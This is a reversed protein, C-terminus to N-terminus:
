GGNCSSWVPLCAIYHCWSCFNNGNLGHYFASLFGIFYALLLPLAICVQLLRKGMSWRGIHMSPLFIFAALLGVVLGGFHAFNDVGPFLGLAFSFLLSGFIMLLKRRPKKVLSWNKILDVLLVSDLGFIAGSAGVTVQNPLFVASLVMGGVGSLLYIPVIRLTGHVKELDWLVKTQSALNLGIHVLGAHLFCSTWFRWWEGAHLISPVWKGGMTLLVFGNPGLMPNQKPSAFGNGEIFEWVMLIIDLVTVIITFYPVSVKHISPPKMYQAPVNTPAVSAVGGSLSNMTGVSNSKRLKAMGRRRGRGRGKYSVEFDDQAKLSVATLSRNLTPPRAMLTTVSIDDTGTAAAADPTQAVHLLLSFATLM